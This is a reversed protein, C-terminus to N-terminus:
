RGSCDISGGPLAYKPGVLIVVVHELPDAATEVRLREIPFDNPFAEAEKPWLTPASAPSHDSM